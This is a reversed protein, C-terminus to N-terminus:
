VHRLNKRKASRGVSSTHEASQCHSSKSRPKHCLSPVREFVVGPGEQALLRPQSHPQQMSIVRRSLAVYSGRRTTLQCFAIASRQCPLTSTRSTYTPSTWATDT